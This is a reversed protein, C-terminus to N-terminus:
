MHILKNGVVLWCVKEPGSLGPFKKGCALFNEGWNSVSPFIVLEVM